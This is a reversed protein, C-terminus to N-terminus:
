TKRAAAMLYQVLPALAPPVAREDADVTHTKGDDAVSVKYHLQDAGGSRLEEPLDFFGASEVLASLESAQDASMTDTDFSKTLRMGAFGGTRTFEIRM